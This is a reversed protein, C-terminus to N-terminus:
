SGSSGATSRLMRWVTAAACSAPRQTPIQPSIAPSGRVAHQQDPEAHVLQRHRAVVQRAHLRRMRETRSSSARARTASAGHRTM